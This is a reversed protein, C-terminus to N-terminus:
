VQAGQTSSNEFQFARPLLQSAKLRQSTVLREHRYGAFLSMQFDFMTVSGPCCPGGRPSLCSGRAVLPLLDSPLVSLWCPEGLWSPPPHPPSTDLFGLVFPKLFFPTMLDDVTDGAVRSPPHYVARPARLVTGTTPKRPTLRLLLPVAPDSPLGNKLDVARRM